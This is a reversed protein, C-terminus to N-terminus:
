RQKFAGPLCGINKKFVSTFYSLNDFGCLLATEKVTYKGTRLLERAYECRLLNIYQVVTCGTVRKFLRLFYFKSFGANDAIQEVTLKHQLNEKIYGITHIVSQFAHDDTLASTRHQAHNECLYLMLILVDRRIRAQWLSDQLRHSEMINEFLAVATENRLFPNFDLLTVDVGNEACFDSGVILCDFRIEEDAFIRHAIYSNMIAIDGPTVAYSNEGCVVTGSGETVRLIEINKHLNARCGRGVYHMQPRIIFPLEKTEYLHPEFTTNSHLLISNNM